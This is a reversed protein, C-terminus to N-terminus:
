HTSKEKVFTEFDIGNNIELFLNDVEVAITNGNRSETMAKILQQHTATDMVSSAMDSKVSVTINQGQFLNKIADLFTNDIEAANMKFITTMLWYNKQNIYM